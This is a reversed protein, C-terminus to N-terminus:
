DLVGEDTEEGGAPGVSPLLAPEDHRENVTRDPEADLEGPAACGALVAAALSFMLVWSVLATSNRFKMVM